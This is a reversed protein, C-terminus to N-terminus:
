WINDDSSPAGRLLVSLKLCNLSSSFSQPHCQFFDIVSEDFNMKRKGLSFTFPFIFSWFDRPHKLVEELFCCSLQRSSYKYRFFEQVWILFLFLDLNFFLVSLIFSAVKSQEPRRALVRSVFPWARAWKKQEWPLM